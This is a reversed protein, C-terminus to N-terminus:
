VDAPLAELIWPVHRCRRLVPEYLEVDALTFALHGCEDDIGSIHVECLRGGFADVLVHGLEMSPDVTKVHAVDLCFRAEPLEAFYPELEDVDHGGPKRADMNELALLEGLPALRAPEELIHPHVVVAALRPAITGVVAALEREGDDPLELPAHLSLRRVAPRSRLLYAAASELAAAALASLELAEHSWSTARGVLAPWGGDEFVETAVGVATPQLARLRGLVSEEDLRM